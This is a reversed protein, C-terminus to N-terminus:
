SGPPPGAWLKPTGGVGKDLGSSTLLSAGEAWWSHPQSSPSVVQETWALGPWHTLPLYLKWRRVQCPCWPGSHM